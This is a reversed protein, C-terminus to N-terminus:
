GGGARYLPELEVRVVSDHGGGRRRFAQVALWLDEGRWERNEEPGYILRETATIQRALEPDVRAAFLQLNVPSDISGRSQVWRLLASRASGLDNQRCAIELAKLAGRENEQSLQAETVSKGAAEKKKHISFLWACGTGIWCVALALSVWPWWSDSGSSVEGVTSKQTSPVSSSIAPSEISPTSAPSIDATAGEVALETAPLRAIEMRDLRTNWWPIAVDASRYRGTQSPMLATKEQRSASLGSPTKQENLEPQDLYAKIATGAADFGGSVGLEPLVGVTAGQAHLTLTRTIPDGVKVRPPNQSWQEELKLSEAPVWHQGTFAAPVPRVDLDIAESLLHVSRGPQAFFGNFRSSGGVLQADLVVPEIHLKGSKQPFIAYKREVAAYRDGGREVVYNRGEDIRQVLADPASPESLDANNFNVRRLLRVTYLVQAQVYPNKPTAEVELYVPEDHGGDGPKAHAAAEVTVTLANSSANGFSIAPIPLSGERKPALNVSWQVSRTVKGNMMSVQQSQSTGLVRFDTELVSLDPDVDTEEEANLTLNLTEGLRVPNRDVEARVSAAYSPCALALLLLGFVFFFLHRPKSIM